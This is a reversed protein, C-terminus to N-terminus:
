AVYRNATLTWSTGLANGVFVWSSDAAITSSAYSTTENALMFVGSTRNHQGVRVEIWQEGTPRPEYFSTEVVITPSGATGGTNATGEIRIRVVRSGDSLTEDRRYLRQMSNDASGLHLKPYPPNSASLGSYVTSPSNFTMYTNSGVYIDSYPSSDLYFSFAWSPVSFADDDTSSNRLQTWGTYSTAGSRGLLPAATGTVIAINQGLTASQGTLAFSRAAGSVLYTKLLSASLGEAAFSGVSLSRDIGKFFTADQGTLAFAAADAPMPPRQVVLGAAQGSSTFTGANTGIAYSRVNGASMGTTVFSGVSGAIRRVYRGTSAQGSVAFAEAAASMVPGCQLETRTVLAVVETPLTLPYDAVAAVLLTRTGGIVPIRETVVPVATTPAISSAYTPAQGSPLETWVSGPSTPNFGAPTSTSNAPAPTATTVAPNSPLTTIGPAVPFWVSGTGSIGAWFLADMSCLLGDSNFSWAMGNSKYSATLGAAQLYVTQLPYLPMSKAALQLSVGARNGRMIANQTRAYRLAMSAANSGKFEYGTSATWVVADDSALPMTLETKPTTEVSTNSQEVDVQQTGQEDSAGVATAKQNEEQQLAEQRPRQQIGYTRDQQIAVSTGEFVLERGTALLENLGAADTTVAGKEATDQQGNQSLGYALYRDTRTKTQGDPQNTSYSVVTREAEYEGSPLSGIDYDGWNIGSINLKGILSKLPEYRIQTQKLQRKEVRKAKAADQDAVRETGDPDPCLRDSPLPLSEQPDESKLVEYEFYEETRFLLEERGIQRVLREGAGSSLDGSAYKANLYAQFISACEGAFLRQETTVRKIVYDADDYSTITVVTPNHSFGMSYAIGGADDQVYFNYQQNYTISEDREWDRQAKAEDAADLAAQAQAKEEETATPDALTEAAEEEEDLAEQATDAATPKSRQSSFTVSVQQGPLIGQNIGSLEIVDNATLLPGAGLGDITVIQLAESENLYGFLSESSLLRDIVSVYGSSLDFDDQYINTLSQGSVALGLAACCKLLVSGAMIGMPARGMTTAPALAYEERVTLKNAAQSSSFNFPKAGAKPLYCQEAAQWDYDAEPYNTPDPGGNEDPAVPDPEPEQAQQGKLNALYVLKDGLQVTTQNRFPDAFSSLVRLTRPLRAITGNREWGIQVTSGVAPTSLGTLVLQGRCTILGQEASIAEDAINGTIITGLNCFVRARVDVTM